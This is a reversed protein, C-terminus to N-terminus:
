LALVGPTLRKFEAGREPDSRAPFIQQISPIGDFHDLHTHHAGREHSAVPASLLDGVFEELTDSRGHEPDQFRNTALDCICAVIGQDRLEKSGRKFSTLNSEPTVGRPYHVYRRGSPSGNHATSM